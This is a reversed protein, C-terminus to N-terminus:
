RLWTQRLLESLANDTRSWEEQWRRGTPGAENWPPALLERWSEEYVALPTGRSLYAAASGRGPASYIATLIGRGTIPHTIAAPTAASSCGAGTCGPPLTRRHPDPRRDAAASEGRAM